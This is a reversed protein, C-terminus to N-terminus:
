VHARGIKEGKPGLGGFLGCGAASMCIASGTNIGTTSRVGGYFYYGLLWWALSALVNCGGLQPHGWDVWSDQPEEAGPGVGWGLLFVTRRVKVLKKWSHTPTDVGKKGEPSANTVHITVNVEEVVAEVPEVACEMAAANAAPCPAHDVPTASAAAAATAPTATAADVAETPVYKYNKYREYYDYDDEDSDASAAASTDGPLAAPNTM